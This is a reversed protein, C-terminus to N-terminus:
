TNSTVTYPPYLPAADPIPIYYPRTYVPWRELVLVRAKLDELEQQLQAIQEKKTM